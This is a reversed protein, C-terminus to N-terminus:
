ESGDPSVEHGPLRTTGEDNIVTNERKERDAQIERRPMDVFYDKAAKVADSIAGSLGPSGPSSTDVGYEAM